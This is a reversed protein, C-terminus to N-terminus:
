FNLSITPWCFSGKKFCFTSMRLLRLLPGPPGVRKPALGDRVSTSNYPELLRDDYRISSPLWRRIEFGGNREFTRNFVGCYVGRSDVLGEIAKLESRSLKDKVLDLLRYYANRYWDKDQNLGEATATNSGERWNWGM